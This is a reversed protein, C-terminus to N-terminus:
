VFDSSELGTNKPGCIIKWATMKRKGFDQVDSSGGYNAGVFKEKGMM